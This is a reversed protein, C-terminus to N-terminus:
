YANTWPTLEGTFNLSGSSTSTNNVYITYTGADYNLAFGIVDGSAIQSRASSPANFNNVHGTQSFALISGYLSSDNVDANPTTTNSKCFGVGAALNGLASGYQSGTYTAEFYWKGTSVSITGKTNRWANAGVMELNGNSIPGSTSILPNWTCYNGRVEGGAGTDMGYSTPTDVLSDNGAGATVSFNNCSWNNGNGSTDKGLTTATTASNDSFPLHFGNTGYGSGSYAKPILQGTTPDTTTFSSPDAAIGDLFFVDAVYFGSYSVNEKGILHTGAQNIGGDANQSPYSSSSFTTIQQGNVWIKIRDTSTSQTSDYSLLIHYWASPDRFVQTTKFSGAAGGVGNGGDFVLTEDTSWYFQTYSPSGGGSGNFIHEFNGFRSRKIWGAWTWTKRNGAVSFVRSLSASDPSNFRLSRSVQYTTAGAPAGLLLSNNLISM